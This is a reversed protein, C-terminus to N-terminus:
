KEIRGSYDLIGGIDVVDKYGYGILKKSALKSRHGSRCYVYITQNKDPLFALAKEETM